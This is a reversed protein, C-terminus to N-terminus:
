RDKFHESVQKRKKVYYHFMKRGTKRQKGNYSADIQASRYPRDFLYLVIFFTLVLCILFVSIQGNIDAMKRKILLKYPRYFPSLEVDTMSYCMWYM